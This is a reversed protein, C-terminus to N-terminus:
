IGGVAGNLGNGGAGMSLLDTLANRGDTPSKALKNAADAVTNAQEAAAQQQAAQARAQAIAQVAEEDKILKPNVGTKEAYDRILTHLDIVDLATPDAKALQLVFLALAEVNSRGQARQVQAFVSEYVPHFAVGDLEAPPELFMGRRSMIAYLREFFPDLFGGDIQKAVPGLALLKEEKKELIETATVDGRDINSILLFLDEYFARKILDRLDVIHAALWDMRFKSVDIIPRFTKDSTEDFYTVGGPLQSAAVNKMAVPAILPPNIGKNLAGQALKRAFMLEKADALCTMGPCDSGYVDSGTTEWRIAQVPWENYGGEDLFAKRNSAEYYCSAYRKYKADLREEDYEANEYIIHVVDIMTETEGRNWANVVEQSFNQTEYGNRSRKGFQLVIQRVSLQYKRMFVRVRGKDDYGIWYEGIAFHTCRIVKEDDEETIMATTGFVGLDNYFTALVEYFNSGNLVSAMRDRVDELWVKVPQQEMLDADAVAMRFWVRGQSTVGSQIGSACTRAAYTMTSDLIKQNRKQFRNRNSNQLRIRQPRCLEATETWTSEMPQRAATLQADLVDLRTRKTEPTKGPTLQMGPSREM